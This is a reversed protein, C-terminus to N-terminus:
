PIVDAQGSLAVLARAVSLQNCETRPSAASHKIRRMSGDVCVVLDPAGPEVAFGKQTATTLAIRHALRAGKAVPSRAPDDDSTLPDLLDALPIPELRQPVVFHFAGADEHCALIFLRARHSSMAHYSSHCPLLHVGYGADRLQAAVAGVFRGQDYNRAGLPIEFLAILPKAGM